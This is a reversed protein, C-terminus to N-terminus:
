RMPVLLVPCSVLDAVHEDTSDMMAALFRDYSMSSQEM